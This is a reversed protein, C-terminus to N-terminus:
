TNGRAQGNTPDKQFQKLIPVVEDPGNEWDDQLRIDNAKPYEHETEDIANIDGAIIGAVINHDMLIEGTLLASILALQNPGYARRM